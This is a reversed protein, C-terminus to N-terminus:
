ATLLEGSDGGGGIVCPNFQKDLLVVWATSALSRVPEAWWGVPIFYRGNAYRYGRAGDPYQVVQTEIGRRMLIADARLEEAWEPHTER